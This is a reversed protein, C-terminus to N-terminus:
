SFYRGAIGRGLEDRAMKRLKDGDAGPSCERWYNWLVSALLSAVARRYETPWYQGTCYDIRVKDGDINITLRGTAQRLIDDATISDRWRIADLMAQADTLSRTIGRMEARYSEISGYNGFELGPRQFAFARLASLINAKM